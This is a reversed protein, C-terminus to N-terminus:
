SLNTLSTFSGGREGERAHRRKNVGHPFVYKLNNRLFWLFQFERSANGVDSSRTGVGSLSSLVMETANWTPFFRSGGGSGVGGWYSGTFPFKWYIPLELLHHSGTFTTNWHM